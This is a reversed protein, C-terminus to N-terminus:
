ALKRRNSIQATRLAVFDNASGTTKFRNVSDKVKKDVVQEPREAPASASPSTMPPNIRPAPQKFAPDNIEKRGYASNVAHAVMYDLVPEAEPVAKRMKEVLPAKALAEFQRRLDNDEGSLWPIEKRMQQEYAAKEAKRREADALQQFRTPLYKDRNKRALSLYEKVQKKTFQKGDVETIVEDAGLHDNSFLVDEAWEVYDVASQHM